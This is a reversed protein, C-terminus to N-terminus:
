LKAVYQFTTNSLTAATIGTCSHVGPVDYNKLVPEIPFKQTSYTLRRYPQCLHCM